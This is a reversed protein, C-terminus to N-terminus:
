ERQRRRPPQLGHRGAEVGCEPGDIEHARQERPQVIKSLSSCFARKLAIPGSSPWSPTRAAPLDCASASPAHPLALGPRISRGIPCISATTPGVPACACARSRNRSALLWATPMSCDAHGCTVACVGTPREIRHVIPQGRHEICRLRQLRHEVVEVRREVVLLLRREVRQSPLRLTRASRDFFM